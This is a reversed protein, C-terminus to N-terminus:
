SLQTLYLKWVFWQVWKFHASQHTQSVYTGKFANGCNLYLINGNDVSTEKHGQVTVGDRQGQGGAVGLRNISETVM